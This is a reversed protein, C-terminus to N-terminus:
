GLIWENWRERLRDANTKGDAGRRAYWRGDVVVSSAMYDPHSPLKRAVPESLLKFANRNTPGEPYIQSFAAQRDARAAFEIFRQASQVNRSGKPIAWNDWQVKSQNWNIEMAGGRSVVVSARGDYSQMLDAAKDTMIQQIESGVTWWKRIHPKIKDLSAFIRDIDMPYIKDPSVGDALLAEEWPGEGGNRGTVLSRVGAFKKVDWFDAWSSPRPKGAPYKETNCVMVYSYILQGVGYPHKAFDLLGDLDDKKFTSYDIPELLGKEEASITAGNPLLVIDATVSKTKVMLELQASSVQDTIPTVTIGTEAQFPKVYAEILAKAVDGGNVVVRLEDTSAARVGPALSNMAGALITSSGAQLIRRRNMLFSM